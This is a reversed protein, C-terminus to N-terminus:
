QHQHQRGNVPLTGALGPPAHDIVDQQVNDGNFVHPPAARVAPRQEEGEAEIQTRRISVLIDRGDRCWNPGPVRARRLVPARALAIARNFIVITPSAPAQRRLPAAQELAEAPWSFSAARPLARWPEFQAFARPLSTAAM